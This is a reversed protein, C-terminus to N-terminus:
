KNWREEDFEGRRADRALIESESLRLALRSIHHSLEGLQAMSRKDMNLRSEARQHEIWDIIADMDARANSLRTIMEDLSWQIKNPVRVRSPKSSQTQAM